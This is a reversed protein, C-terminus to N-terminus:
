LDTENDGKADHVTIKLVPMNKEDRLEFANWESGHTLQSVTHSPEIWSYAKTDKAEGRHVLEIPAAGNEHALNTIVFSYPYKHGNAEEGKQIQVAARFGPGQKSDKGRIVFRSGFKAMQGDLDAVELFSLFTDMGKNETPIQSGQGEKIGSWYVSLGSLSGTNELILHFDKAAVGATLTLLAITAFKMM